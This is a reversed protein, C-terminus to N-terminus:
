GAALLRSVTALLKIERRAVGLTAAATDPSVGSRLLRMAQARGTRNLRGERLIENRNQMNLELAAFDRRLGAIEDLCLAHRRECQQSLAGGDRAAILNYRRM